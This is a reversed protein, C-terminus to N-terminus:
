FFKIHTGSLQAATRIEHAAFKAQATTFFVNVGAAKLSLVQSEVSSDNTEYSVAKVLLQDAKAGLGAKLGALNDKGVDDNQYLIGIKANPKVQLAYRVYTQM